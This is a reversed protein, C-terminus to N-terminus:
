GGSSHNFSSFPFIIFIEDIKPEILLLFSSYEDEFLPSIPNVLADANSRAFYLIKTLETLGPNISVLSVLFNKPFIQHFFHFILNKFFIAFGSSIM